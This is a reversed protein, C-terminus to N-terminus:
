VSLILPNYLTICLSMCESYQSNFRSQIGNIASKRMPLLRTTDGEPGLWPAVDLLDICRPGRGNGVKMSGSSQANADFFMRRRASVM